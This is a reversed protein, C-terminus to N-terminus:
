GYLHITDSFSRLINFVDLSYKYCSWKSADPHLCFLSETENPPPLAIQTSDITTGKKSDLIILLSAPSTLYVRKELKYITFTQM